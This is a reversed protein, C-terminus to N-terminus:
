VCGGDNLCYEGRECCAGLACCHGNCCVGSKCQSGNTCGHGAGGPKIKAVFGVNAAYANAVGLAALAAGATSAVLLKFFLRRSSGAALVKTVLDFQDEAM